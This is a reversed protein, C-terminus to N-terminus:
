GLAAYGALTSSLGSVQTQSVTGSINAVTGSAFDSVQSSTITFASNSPTIQNWNTSLFTAGTTGSTIRRYAVGAYNVLDGAVYFTNALWDTIGSWAVQSSAVTGSINIATGALTAYTATGSTTAYVATGSTTAYSATGSVAVTGSTFDTIQSRTLSLASQTIGLIASSSSGTNTIPATVSIVGSAGTAGTAGTDGKVGPLGVTAASVAVTSETVAVAVAQESVTVSTTSEVVSVVVDSM